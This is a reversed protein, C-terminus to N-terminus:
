LVDEVTKIDEVVARQLVPAKNSNQFETDPKKSNDAIEKDKQPKKDQKIVLKDYDVRTGKADMMVEMTFFTNERIFDYGINFKVDEPGVSIYFANEQFLKDNPSDNSLNISGFWALTLYKCLRIYERAYVNARGYRYADFVPMPSHDQYVSQYFGIDQMWRKIQTHMRPGIRGIFQTDGTGYLAAALQAAFDFSFATQKEENRYDFINQSAQAMYRARTTGINKGHLEGFHKDKDIDQYYGLDLRHSYESAHGKYLFDKSSYGKEYVLDLGYKPRRRGLWWENMYDNMGYQLFLNDDLKQKGRVLIKSQATGYAVQTMNTGSNFRGIGGVGIRHHYNLIPIAKLVSGKPLEFVFGPGVFM